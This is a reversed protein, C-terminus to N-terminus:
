NIEVDRKDFISYFSEYVIELSLAKADGRNFEDTWCNM